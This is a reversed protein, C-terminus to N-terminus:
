DLDRAVRFGVTARRGSATFAQFSAIKLAEPGSRWSGGKAVHLTCAPDYCDSVWEWVNGQMDHVGYDNPRYSGATATDRARGDNCTPNAWFLTKLSADAGNAYECLQRVNRAPGYESASGGRAAHEWEAESPLRFGSQGSTKNLWTMFAGIDDWTIGSIPRRDGEVIDADVMHCIGTLQCARWEDRTVEYKGIAYRRTLRVGSPKGDAAAPTAGRVVIADEPLPITVMEPCSPCPWDLGKGAVSAIAGPVPSAAIGLRPLPLDVGFISRRKLIDDFYAPVQLHPKTEGASGKRGLALQYTEWRAIKAIEHLGQDPKELLHLLVRSYVSFASGDGPGLDHLAVQNTSAAYLIFTGEPARIPAFSDSGEILSAAQGGTVATRPAAPGADNRCADVIFIGLTSRNKTKLADVIDLLAISGNSAPRQQNFDSLLLFPEKNHEQGHGSFFFISVDDRKLGALHENWAKSFQERTPMEVLTRVNDKPVKLTDVLLKYFGLADTRARPLQQKADLHPYAPVGVILAKVKAPEGTSQAQTAQPAGLVLMAAFLYLTAFMRTRYLM